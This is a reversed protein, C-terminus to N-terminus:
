PKRVITFGRKELNALLERAQGEAWGIKFAQTGRGFTINSLAIIALAEIAAQRDDTQETNTM